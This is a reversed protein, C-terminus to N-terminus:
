ILKGWMIGAIVCVIIAITIESNEIEKKRLWEEFRNLKKM